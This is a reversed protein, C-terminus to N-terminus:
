KEKHEERQEENRKRLNIPSYHVRAPLNLTFGLQLVSRSKVARQVLTVPEMCFKIRVSLRHFNEDIAMSILYNVRLIM